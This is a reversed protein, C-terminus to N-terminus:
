QRGNLFLPSPRGWEGSFVIEELPKRSRLALERERMEPTLVSPDAPYGVAIAAGVEYDEPIRFIQRAQEPYIGGMQHVVLGLATAQTVLNEVAMGLDHMAYRNPKGGQTTKKAISLMLVYARKAWAANSEMLCDLLKQFNEPDDRTAVIFRWPQENSSSPAWRAAEFLSQLKESEIPRDCFARPSWRARLLEHVPHKTTAPKQVPPM